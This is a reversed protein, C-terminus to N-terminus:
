SAGKEIDKRKASRNRKKRSSASKGGWWSAGIFVALLVVLSGIRAWAPGSASIGSFVSWEGNDVATLIAGLSLAVLVYCTFAEVGRWIPHYYGRRSWLFAPVACLVLYIFFVASLVLTEGFRLLQRDLKDSIYDYILFRYLLL